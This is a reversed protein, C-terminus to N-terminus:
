LLFSAPPRSGIRLPPIRCGGCWGQRTERCSGQNPLDWQSPSSSCLAVSVSPDRKQWPAMRMDLRLPLIHFQSLILYQIRAHNREQTCHIACIWGQSKKVAFM